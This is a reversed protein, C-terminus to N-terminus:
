VLEAAVFTSGGVFVIDNANALSKARIFAAKVDKEKEGQLGISKAMEYLDEVALARPIKAQTFIYFADKPLMKLIGSIDKDNVMGIVMYLKQYPLKSLQELIYTMGAKNHGTDAICLPNQGLIEWRGRLGTNIKVKEIGTIIHELHIQPFQERLVEICTIVGLLNKQQYIGMIPLNVEFQYNKSEVKYTSIGKSYDEKLLESKTRQDAFHIESHMEAAKKKFVEQTEVQTESIIIPTNEKIIGAKEAAILELTEGLFATHDFGINTILAALPKVVNTSDLRGGMGTELIVIDVKEKKFYDFAMAVTMEFFSPGIKNFVEKNQLTFDIVFQEPVMEGNIRIRERFDVLHPSTYLGTKFGAEQFISALMHSTSGKGNTGAIHICVLDKEPNKLAALLNITNSLDNKYAAAGVRQFM